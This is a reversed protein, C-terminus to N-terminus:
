CRTHNLNPAFTVRSRGCPAFLRSFRARLARLLLNKVESRENVSRLSM